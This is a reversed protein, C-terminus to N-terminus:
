QAYPNTQDIGQKIKAKNEKERVKPRNEKMLEQSEAIEDDFSKPAPPEKKSIEVTDVPPKAGKPNLLKALKAELEALKAKDASKGQAKIKNIKAQLELIQKQKIPDM